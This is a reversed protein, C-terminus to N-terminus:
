AIGLLYYMFGLQEDQRLQVADIFKGFENKYQEFQKRQAYYKSPLDSGLLKIAYEADTLTRYFSELNASYATGGNVYGEARAMGAEVHMKVNPLGRRIVDEIEDDVEVDRMDETPNWKSMQTYEYGLDPEEGLAFEDYDIMEIAVALNFDVTMGSDIVLKNFKSRDDEPVMNGQTAIYDKEYTYNSNEGKKHIFTYTDWIEFKFDKRASIISLRLLQYRDRNYDDKGMYRYMYATRGDKSIEVKDVYSSSYHAFWYVNQMSNLSLQDQIITTTRDNTLLMGREWNVARGKLLDTMDYTVYSGYENSGLSNTTAIGQLRQGYPTNVPDTALAVTNNGEPKMRYFRYRTSAPWFGACNYNETGIDIIWVDGGNHYVFSGGEIQNHSASDGHGMSNDSARIAAYLAGSEWSSRTAFMGISDSYYELELEGEADMGETDYYLLDYITAWERNSTLMNKRINYITSDGLSTGAYLFMGTDIDEMHGDAFNFSDNDNSEAHCAYYCTKDIGWTDMLKYDTGAAYELASCLRFFANTGYEWYSPGEIYSGDPAYQGMGYKPLSEMQVSISQAMQESYKGDLEGMLALSAIVGGATCVCNWNNEREIYMSGSVHSDYETKTGLVAARYSEYAGKKYLIEAIVDMDYAEGNPRTIGQENLKPYENVTLDYYIAVYEMAAACNLFHGPGWHTWKDMEIVIEYAAQLYKVEKTLMYGIALEKVRLLRNEPFSRGGVDYGNRDMNQQILKYDDHLDESINVGIYNGNEDELAYMNYANSAGIWNYDGIGAMREYNAWKILETYNDEETLEGSEFGAKLSQYEEYMADWQEQTGLIYPHQFNNTNEKVDEYVQEATPHDFIFKKMLDLMFSLGNKRDLLNQHTSIIVLGMDDYEGYFGPFLKNFDDFAIYVVQNGDKDEIVKPAFTLPITESGVTATDKGIVLYTASVGTSIDIYKGDPHVYYPYAIYDLVKFLPIAVKGDLMKPAGYAVGDETEFIPQKKKDMYCYNTGIKMSLSEEMMEPVTLKSVGGLINVTKPYQPNIVSGYGDEATIDQIQNTGTYAKFNDFCVSTGYNSEPEGGTSFRFMQLGRGNMGYLTLPKNAFLKLPESGDAPGYYVYLQFWKLNEEEKKSIEYESDNERDIPLHEYTYDFILKFSTWKNTLTLSDEASEMAPDKYDNTGNFFLVQNNSISFLTYDSRTADSGGTTGFQINNKINTIDDSKIDFELVAGTNAWAGFGLEAYGNLSSGVELRWFYNYSFDYNTEYDITFFSGRGGDPISMGNQLDWGEDFTRNLRIEYEQKEETEGNEGEGTEEATAFITFMSLLSSLILILSLIRLFKSKM